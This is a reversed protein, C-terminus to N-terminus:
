YSRGHSWPCAGPFWAAGDPLFGEHHGWVVPKWQLGGRPAMWGFRWVDLFHKVVDGAAVVEEVVDEGSADVAEPPPAGGAGEAGDSARGSARMRSRQQPVPSM